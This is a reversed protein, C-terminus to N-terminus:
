VASSTSSSTMLRYQIELVWYSTSRASSSASAPYTSRAESSILMSSRWM